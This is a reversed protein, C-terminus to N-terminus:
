SLEMRERLVIRDLMPREVLKAQAIVRQVLSLNTAYITRKQDYWLNDELGVRVGDACLIGLSNASLQFRGLGAVSVICDEPLASLVAALQILNAQAGSINGLLVNVYLPAVILGENLLVKVFHAM